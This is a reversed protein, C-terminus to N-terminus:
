GKSRSDRSALRVWADELRILGLRERAEEFLSRVKALYAPDAYLVLGETLADAATMRGWRVLEEFEETTFAHPEVPVGKVITYFMDWRSGLDPPLDEAVLLLDADSGPRWDGRAFSGFLIALKLRCRKAVVDRVYARLAEIVEERFGARGERGEHM